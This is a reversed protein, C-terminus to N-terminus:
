TEIAFLLHLAPDTKQETRATGSERSPTSHGTAGFDAYSKDIDALLHELKDLRVNVDHLDAYYKDLKMEFKGLLKDFCIDFKELIKSM